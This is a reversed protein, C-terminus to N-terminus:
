RKAQITARSSQDTTAPAAAEDSAEKADAHDETKTPDELPEQPPPPPTGQPGPAFRYGSYIPLHRYYVELMYMSLCTVYLRGGVFGWRDGTPSWSGSEPGTKSQHSPVEQRMVKNWKNWIEGEMHHTAQTAYYWYYVDQTRTNGYEIPNKNLAAVGQVLRQDDQKWGLYQRCLLGEAAMANTPNANQWYGYRRGGDIQASDLYKSINALTQDPVRLEAMRASQLAMLFWGTVSTDSDQGPYYRWGGNEKDQASVCYAVAREAPSRFASDHTMGYLECLAITCQAHTYLTQQSADALTGLFYGDRHQMKLLAAWGRGVEKAYRGDRHTDGHGQFALLAMATAAATNESLSGDTYPGVLSWSGDNKQQRALWQLGLDVSAETLATGGYKGLLQERKSGASRGSLALGVMPASINSSAPLTGDGPRALNIPGLDPPAALPDDVPALDQPTIIQEKVNPDLTEGSLVSPDSLQTGLQEAYNPEPVSSVEIDTDPLKLRGTAALLGLVILLVTHFVTSVLWAPANKFAERLEDVDGEDYDDYAEPLEGPARVNVPIPRNSLDQQAGPVPPLKRKAPLDPDQVGM